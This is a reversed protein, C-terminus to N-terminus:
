DNENIEKEAQDRVQRWVQHAIQGSVQNLGQLVKLRVEGAYDEWLRELIHNRIKVITNM